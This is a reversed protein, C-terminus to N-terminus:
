VGFFGFPWNVLAGNDNFNAIRVRTTNKEDDDEFILIQIDDPGILKQYVLEGFRNVMTESHTEIIMSTQSASSSGSFAIFADALTAQHAPHLHLEPQEVALLSNSRSPQRRRSWWVQALVPLIQSLGYGTDILNTEFGNDNLMISIHSTGPEKHVRVQYGYLSSVADSFENLASSSLSALFMAFNTGDSSIKSVSLDQQRYYRESRVRAPGIYFVESFVSRMRVSFAHFIRPLHFLFTLITLEEVSSETANRLNKVANPFGRSGGKGYRSELEDKSFLGMSLLQLAYQIRTQGQTKGHCYLHIAGAILKIITEEGSLRDFRKQDPSTYEFRPFLEDKQIYLNASRVINTYDKQNIDLQSINNNRDIIINSRISFQPLLLEIRSIHSEKGGSHDSEIQSITINVEIDLKQQGRLSSYSSDMRIYIGDGFSLDDLGFKFTITQSSKQDRHAAESFSGFDVLDGWWLIPGNTATTISQSILALSRLYSSKGSSNRGVLINLRRLPILETRKFRRFNEIGYKFV